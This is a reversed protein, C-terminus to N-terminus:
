EPELFHHLTGPDVGDWGRYAHWVSIPTTALFALFHYAAEPYRSLSSIVGHWSGGTTNGVLNPEDFEVWRQNERDWVAHTGPLISTGLKGKVVSQGSEQVLGGVDGWSFTFVAKGRMFYDWAEGLDWALQASPGFKA